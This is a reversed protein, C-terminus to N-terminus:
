RAPCARRAPHEDECLGEILTDHEEALAACRTQEEESLAEAIPQLRRLGFRRSYPLELAAEAWKWGQALVREREAALKESVLRMLIDPDQLWGGDDDEFLDRM